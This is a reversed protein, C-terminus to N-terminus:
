ALEQVRLAVRRRQAGGGGHQQQAVARLADLHQHRATRHRGAERGTGVHEGAAANVGGIGLGMCVGRAARRLAILVQGLGDGGDALAKFFQANQQRAVGVSRRGIGSISHRVTRAAVPASPPLACLRATRCLRLCRFVPLCRGTVPRSDTYRSVAHSEALCDHFLEHSVALHDLRYANGGSIGGCGATILSKEEISTGRERKMRHTRFRQIDSICDYFHLKGWPFAANERADM